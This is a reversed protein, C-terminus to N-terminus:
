DCLACHLADAYVMVFNVFDDGCPIDFVLSTHGLERREPAPHDLNREKACFLAVVEAVLIEGRGRYRPMTIKTVDVPALKLFM